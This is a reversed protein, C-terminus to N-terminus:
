NKIRNRLLLLAILNPIAMLVNIFDTLEWVLDLSMIAGIFIMVLYAVQFPKIGKQGFVYEVAREGFYSWGLLTACAFAILSLNLLAEGMFPLSSFAATTLSGSSYAAACGPDKLLHTIIVIGTVACMIVTDWFAATMSILSQRKPNQTDASAAAIAGSGLGAENTFLGRAIGYRLSSSLTGGIIGGALATNTFASRFILILASLFFSRNIWLILFCSLIYFFGMAPVMRSCVRGISKMGGILVLGTVIAAAVGAIYPSIHFLSSAAEAMANAQTTCGVGFSAAITALAYFVALGKKHLGFELVYMPGGRYQGEKNKKRFLMSLYSEGYSTAMGLIGTIWCWFLAGPGGLAIATSVGIINGTGLTAALTTALAAFGSLGAGTPDEKAVSLRIATGINKQPFKLHFTFYLHTGLLLLIMPVGWLLQNISKLFPLM